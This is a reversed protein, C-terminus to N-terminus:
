NFDSSKKSVIPNEKDYGFESKLLSVAWDRNKARSEERENRSVLDYYPSTSALPGHRKSHFDDVSQELRSVLVAVYYVDGAADPLVLTTSVPKDSNRALETVLQTTPHPINESPSMTYPQARPRPMSGVSQAMVIPAVDELPFFKVRSQAPAAFQAAFDKHLQTMKPEIEAFTKGLTETKKALDEAAKKALKRAETRRWANEVKAKAVLSNIDRLPEPTTEETRYVFFWPKNMDFFPEPRYLGTTPVLRGNNDQSDFFRSAFALEPLKKPPAMMNQRDAFPKESLTKLGEDKALNYRDQFEKSAGTKFGRAAIFADVLKKSEADKNEKLEAISKTLQKFDAISLTEVCNTEFKTMLSNKVTELPLPTMANQLTQGMALMTGFEGFGPLIPVVLAPPLTAYRTKRDVLVAAGLFGSPSAFSPGAALTAVLSAVNTPLPLVTDPLTRDTLGWSNTSTRAHDSKYTQYLSAAVLNSKLTSTAAIAEFLGAGAGNSTLFASLAVLADAKQTLEAAGKKYYPENEQIEYYALKLKRPERLGIRALAPNPDDNKGAQFLERRTMDDVTGTVKEEFNAAPVAIVRYQAPSTAKKFYDLSQIPPNFELSDSHRLKAGIVMEQAARVRFEDGLSALIGMGASVRSGRNISEKVTAWESPMLIDSFERRTMEWIDDDTYKIGLQDAKKLWLLFELSDKQNNAPQNVFYHRKESRSGGMREILEYIRRIALAAQRDDEPQPNTSGLVEAPGRRSAEVLGMYYQEQFQEPIQRMEQQLAQPNFLKTAQSLTMKNAASVKPMKESLLKQNGQLAFESARTMYDNALARRTEIDALESAYVKRGDIVAMEDGGRSRSALWQPIQQLIDGQGFSLVFMFMVIVTLISFLIRQNRRFIDFPNFAM